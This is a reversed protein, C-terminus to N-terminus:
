KGSIVYVGKAHQRLPIDYGASTRWYPHGYHKFVLRACAEWVTLGGKGDPKLVKGTKPISRKGMIGCQEWKTM